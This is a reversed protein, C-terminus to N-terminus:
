EGRVRALPLFPLLIGRCAAMEEETLATLGSRLVHGSDVYTQLFYPWEGRLWEGIGRMDEASHLERVVTTRFEFPM